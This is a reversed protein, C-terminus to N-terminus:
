DEYEAKLAWRKAKLLGHTDNHYLYLNGEVRNM